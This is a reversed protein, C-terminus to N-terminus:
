NRQYYIDYAIWDVIYAAFYVQHLSEFLTKINSVSSSILASVTTTTGDEFTIQIDRKRCVSAQPDPVVDIITVIANPQLIGNLYIEPKTNGSKKVIQVNGITLMYQTERGFHATDNRISLLKEQYLVNDNELITFESVTTDGSNSKYQATYSGSFAYQASYHIGKAPSVVSNINLNGAVVNNVSIGSALAYDFDHYNNYNNHYGSVAIAFNNTLTSDSPSFHRLLRPNKVKELPMRVIMQNDDATKNFFRILPVGWKDPKVAPKYDYIGKIQELSIYADYGSDAISVTSKMMGGDVTLISFAPSATIADMAKGLNASSSKLSQKLSNTDSNSDIKTCGLFLTSILAITLIIQGTKKM